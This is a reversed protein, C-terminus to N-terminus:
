GSSFKGTPSQPNRGANMILIHSLRRNGKVGARPFGLIEVDDSRDPVSM